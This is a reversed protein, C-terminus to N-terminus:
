PQNGRRAGVGKQIRQVLHVVMGFADKVWLGPQRLRKADPLMFTVVATVVLHDEVLGVAADGKLFAILGGFLQRYRCGNLVGEGDEVPDAGQREGDPFWHDHRNAIAAFGTFRQPESCASQRAGAIAAAEIRRLASRGRAAAIPAFAADFRAVARIDTSLIARPEPQARSIKAALQIAQTEVSRITTTRGRAAIALPEVFVTV